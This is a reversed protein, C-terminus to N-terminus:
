YKTHGGKANQVHQLRRKMSNVLNQIYELPIKQWEELVFAKLQGRNTPNRKGVKKKLYSWAHEIPNLDPSQPPTDLVKGCNYLLWNRVNYEKHKPDNDQYFKFTPRNESIFGFKTASQHLNTKLIQFYQEANMTNEIFVLEGVGQSSICAWVMVSLKGFKVTPIINAKDYAKSVKRWVKPPGENYYLMIKTEDCFIVDKWYEEPHRLMTLAFCFRKEVNTSSLLPKKRAVKSSYGHRLIAQRITEHSVDVGCEEKLEKALTRTSIQPNSKIKRMMLRSARDSIKKKRGGVGKAELRGENEARSLVNYITKRSVSFMEVLEPVSKGLQRNYFILQVVDFSLRKGPM